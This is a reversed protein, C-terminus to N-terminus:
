MNVMKLAIDLARIGDELNVLMEKDYLFNIIERKLPEDERSYDDYKNKM